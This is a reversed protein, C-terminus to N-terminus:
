RGSKKVISGYLIVLGPMSQIGVLTAAALQWANDEKNLWEPTAGFGSNIYASSVPQSLPAAM